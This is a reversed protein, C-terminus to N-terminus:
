HTRLYWPLHFAKLVSKIQSSVLSLCISGLSRCSNAERLIRNVLAAAKQIPTEPVVQASTPTYPYIKKITSYFISFDASIQQSLEIEEGTEFGWYPRHKKGKSRKSKAPAGAPNAKGIAGALTQMGSNGALGQLSLHQKGDM